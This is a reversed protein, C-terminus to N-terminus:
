AAKKFEIQPAAGRAFLAKAVHKDYDTRSEEFADVVAKEENSLNSYKRAGYDDPLWGKGRCAVVNFRRLIDMDNFTIHITNKKFVRVTFFTSKINSTQASSGGSGLAATIAQSMSVYEKLGAFYNAVKDIDDLKAAAAYNLEWRAWSYKADRFFAGDYSGYIPMVVRKGVKFSSNTKWGNFYHINEEYPKDRYGHKTFTDFTDLVAEILTQEYSGMLNLVFQRINAETFDMHCHQKLQEEFENRKKVTLQKKVEPLEMARRWFDTRVVQLLNNVKTQMMATLDEDRTSYRCEEAKDNLGLYKGVVSYNRFYNVITETGLQIVRNYSAVMEEMANNTSIEHKGKVTKHSRTAHDNCGAFLDDEVKRDIKIYVIAVEVKTKREADIFGNKYFDIKAGLEKLRKVLLKRNNTHPNRLTEANLLCVIEGRYMIEIAKLLHLDGNDFPPNMIIADFKDPGAYALFDSDILKHKNGRLTAQLTPDSEIVSIDAGQFPRHYDQYVHGSRDKHEFYKKYDKLAEILDGKGASPELIKKPSGKLRSLMKEALAKPTPYFNKNDGFMAM